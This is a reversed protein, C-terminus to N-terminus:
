QAHPTPQVPPLDPFILEQHVTDQYVAVTDAAMQNDPYTLGLKEKM